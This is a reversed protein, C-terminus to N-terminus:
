LKKRIMKSISKPAVTQVMGDVLPMFLYKPFNEMPDRKAYVEYVKAEEGNRRPNQKIIIAPAFANIVGALKHVQPIHAEEKDVHVKMSDYKMCFTGKTDVKNGRWRMAVEHINCRVEMGLMPLLFPTFASGTMNHIDAALAFECAKNQVMTFSAKADAIGAVKCIATAQLSDGHTNTINSIQAHTNSVMLQGAHAGDLTVAVSLKKLAVDVAAIHLPMPMQAMVEQPMPEKDRPLYHVDRYVEVHRGDVAIHELAIGEEKAKLAMRIINTPAIEVRSFDFAAWTAPVKGMIDAHREKKDTNTGRIDTLVISGADKTELHGLNLRFLGDPTTLAFAGTELSYISDCYNFVSDMISYGLGHVALSVSDASVQLKDQSRRMTMCANTVEAKDIEVVRHRLLQWKHVRGVYVRPVVLEVQTSDGTVSDKVNLSLAVSDVRVSGHLLRVHIAQWTLPIQKEQVLAQLRESAVRSVVRDAHLVVGTLIAVLVFLIILVYHYRKM